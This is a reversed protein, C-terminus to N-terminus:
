DQSEGWAIRVTRRSCIGVCLWDWFPKSRHTVGVTVTRWANEAEERPLLTLSTISINGRFFEQESESIKKWANGGACAIKAPIPTRRRTLTM